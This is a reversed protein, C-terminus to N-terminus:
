RHPYFGWVPQPGWLRLATSVIDIAERM